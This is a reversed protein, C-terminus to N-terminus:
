AACSSSHSRSIRANEQSQELVATYLDTITHMVTAHYLWSPGALAVASIALNRSLKSPKTAWEEEAAKEPRAWRGGPTGEKPYTPRECQREEEGSEEPEGRRGKGRRLWCVVADEGRGAARLWPDEVRM